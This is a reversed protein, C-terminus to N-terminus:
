ESSLKLSFTASIIFGLSDGMYTELRQPRTSCGDCYEIYGCCGDYNGVQWLATNDANFVNTSASRAPQSCKHILLGCGLV